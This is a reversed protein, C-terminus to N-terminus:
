AAPGDLRLHRVHSRSQRGAFACSTIRSTPLAISRDLAGDPTFRSVRAGDWHAIWIGGEADTTM